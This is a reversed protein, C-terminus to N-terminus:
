ARFWENSLGFLSGLTVGDRYKLLDDEVVAQPLRTLPGSIPKAAGPHHYLRINGSALNWPHLNRCLLVASVRTYQGSPRRWVGNPKRRTRFEEYPAPSVWEEDGFLVETVEADDLDDVLANVAIVFPLDPKGYRNAKKLIAKRVASVPDLWKAEAQIGLSGTPLGREQNKPIPFFDVAWGDHEWHWRPLSSLGAKTFERSLESYDSQRIQQRLFSKLASVPVQSHPRGTTEANIWFDPSELENLVDYVHKIRAQATLQEESQDHAAKAELYFKTGDPTEVRFEPRRSTGPVEPHIEVVCDLRALLEHLFLEFFAGQHQLDNSSRFRARLDAEHGSPYRAFWRELEKRIGASDKRSSRNWYPFLAEAYRAPGDYSRM